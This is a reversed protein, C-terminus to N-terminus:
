VKIIITKSGGGGSTRRKKRHTGGGGGGGMGFDMSGFDNLASMMRKARAAREKAAKKGAPSAAFARREEMKTKVKTAGKKVASTFRKWGSKKRKAM